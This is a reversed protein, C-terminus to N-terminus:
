KFIDELQDPTVKKSASSPNDLPVKSCRLCVYICKKLNEASEPVKHGLCKKCFVRKCRPCGMEKNWFGFTKACTNCSSM